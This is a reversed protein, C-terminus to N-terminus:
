WDNDTLVAMSESHLEALGNIVRSKHKSHIVKEHGPEQISYKRYSLAIGPPSFSVSPVETLAGM